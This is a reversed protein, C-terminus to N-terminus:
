EAAALTFPPESAVAAVYDLAQASGKVLAASARSLGAFSSADLEGFFLDNISRIESAIRDLKRRGGPALSLLVSRGDHPNPRKLLLKRQALKGSESAIFASTVHMAQAVAGVSVGREGQLHAVAILVSYQPGSIGMRSGLHARVIEMRHAITFLDNVLVRFRRDCGHELMAALSTTPPL